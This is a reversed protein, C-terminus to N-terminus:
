KPTGSDSSIDPCASSRKWIVFPPCRHSDRCDHQISSLGIVVDGEERQSSPPFELGTDERRFHHIYVALRHDDVVTKNKASRGIDVLPRLLPITIGFQDIPSDTSEHNRPRHTKM